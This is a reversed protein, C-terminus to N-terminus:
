IRRSLEELRRRDRRSLRRLGRQAVVDLLADLEEKDQARQLAEDYRQYRQNPKHDDRFSKISGIDFLLPHRVLVFVLTVSIVAVVPFLIPNQLVIQRPYFITAVGLGIIAGGLHADHGVGDGGRRMCTVSILIFGIAYVYGPVTVGPLPFLGIGSNPLLFIHAYILGCVGGSAGLASYSENRHLWLCLLSGGVVSSWFVALVFIPGSYNWWFASTAPLVAHQNLSHLQHMRPLPSTVGPHGAWAWPAPHSLWPGVFELSSGFAYLSYANFLLHRLDAHILASSALRDYQHGVLIDFPRFMLRDMLGPRQFALISIACIVLLLVTTTPPIGMSSLSEVM